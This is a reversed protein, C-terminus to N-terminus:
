EDITFTGVIDSLTQAKDLNTTVLDEEDSVKQVIESTKEAIVSIGEASEEAMRSIGEVADTIEDIATGLAQVAEGIEMMNKRYNGADEAYQAGVQQFENYDALVTGELFETSSNLCQGMSNVAEYVEKIIADIDNVTNQTQSALNGIEDAVVAFGRGSEGARAAEISANLALLNTQASIEMITHTLENIRDVAKSKEIAEETEQRVQEYMAKTRNTAELTTASLAEARELIKQSDSEGDQSLQQIEKANKNVTEINQSVTEATASSEEMAAALEQTTASNDGCMEGINGSSNKLQEANQMVIIGTEELKRVMDMLRANMMQMAQAMAGIEDKRHCLREMNEDQRLNLDATRQIMGTAQKIPTVIGNSSFFGVVASVIIAIVSALISMWIIYTLSAQIEAKPVSLVLKMGNELIEYYCIKKVGNWSYILETGAKSDDAINADLEKLEGNGMEGLDTGFEVSDHYVVQNESNLICAGGTKYLQIEGAMNEIKSFDIDMGVVGVSVGDAYIPVVYSIMYVNINSNLYPDMWTAAGNGVPVYYWGVHEVDSSDYVSFDTPTLQTFADDESERTAFIGSTPETFEPNYRIYYTLAGETNEAFQLAVPRIRETYEEVYEPNTQFEELDTLSQEALSALTDVSQEVRSLTTNIEEANNKCEMSMIQSADENSVSMIGVLSLGGCILTSVITCIVVLAVVKTRITKM